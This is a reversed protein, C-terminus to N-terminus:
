KVGKSALGRGFHQSPGLQHQASAASFRLMHIERRDVRYAGVEFGEGSRDGPTHGVRDRHAIHEVGDGGKFGNGFLSFGVPLNLFKSSAGPTPPGPYNLWISTTFPCDPFRSSSAICLS